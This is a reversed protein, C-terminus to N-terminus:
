EGGIQITARVRGGSEATVSFAGEALDYRIEEGALRNDGRTATADGRLIVAREADRFEAQAAVAEIPEGDEGRWRLRAPSGSIKVAAEGAEVREGEATLGGRAIVAGGRLILTRTDDNFEIEAAKATVSEGGDPTYRIEAPAGTARYRAAGNARRVELADAAIAIDEGSARVNGSFVAAQDEQYSASDADIAIEGAYAAVNAAAACLAACLSRVAAGSLRRFKM